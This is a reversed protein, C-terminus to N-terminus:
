WEDIPLYLDILGRCGHREFYPPTLLTSHRRCRVRVPSYAARLAQLALGLWKQLPSQVSRTRIPRRRLAVLARRRRHRRPRRSKRTTKGNKLKQEIAKRAAYYDDDPDWNSTLDHDNERLTRGLDRLRAQERQRARRSLGELYEDVLSSDDSSAGKLGIPFASSKVDHNSESSPASLANKLSGLFSDARIRSQDRSVGDIQRDFYSILDTRAKSRQEDTLAGALQSLGPGLGDVMNKLNLMSPQDFQAPNTYGLSTGGM